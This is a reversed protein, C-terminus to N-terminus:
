HRTAKRERIERLLEHGNPRPNGKRRDERVAEMLEDMEAESDCWVTISQWFELFSAQRCLTCVGKSPLDKIALRNAERDAKPWQGCVVCNDETVNPM